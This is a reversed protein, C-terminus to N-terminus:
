PGFTSFALTPPTFNATYRAYRTIRLDDIYGNMPNATSRDVGVVAAVAQNFVTTVAGVSTGDLVGNLYLKINGTATGSRVVAFHYWTSAALNTAGALTTSSYTISLKNASSVFVVLGTTTAGKAWISHQVGAANRYVWGEITFDGSGLQVQPFDPMRLYDSTTGPFYMSSGGFKSQATSTQANGLTEIPNLTANDIISANTSNLLFSTNTVPTPPATPPTFTATYLATGKVLRLGSIYGTISFNNFQGVVFPQATDIVPTGSLTTTSDLVGNVFLRITTGSLTMAIHTWAGLPARATTVATNVAAGNYYYFKIAGVSNYIGFSWNNTANTTTSMCGVMASQTFSFWSTYASYPYIYAEITFDSTWWQCLNATYPTSIYNGATGNSFFSGGNEAITYPTSFGFPNFPSITSASSSSIAFNNTSNDKYRNSQLTLLQTGSIATLPSTPPTFNATYVATGVVVRLNSIFGQFYETNGANYSGIYTIGATYTYPDSVATGGVGNVYVKSQGSSRVVAIHSWVGATVPGPGTALAGSSYWIPNGASASTFYLALNRSSAQSWIDRSAAPISDLNIWAEITFDGAGLALAASSAVSVNYTLGGNFYSSYSYGYPNVAGQLATGNRTITAAATSGDIFTNNKGGNAGNGPLLTIVYNYYADPGNYLPWTAAYAAQMQEHLRWVGVATSTSVTPEVPGEVSGYYRYSM